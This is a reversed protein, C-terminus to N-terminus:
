QPTRWASAFLLRLLQTGLALFTLPLVIAQLLFVVALTVLPEAANEVIGRIREVRERVDMEAKASEWWRLIQEGVGAPSMETAPEAAAQAAESTLQLQAKAAEFEPTLLSHDVLATALAFGPVLFRLALAFVLLRAAMPQLALARPWFQAALWLGAAASLLLNLLLSDSLQLAFKQIGLATLATFALTSFQELLDNLPDLLEGPSVTLGVGAPSLSVDADQILSIVGNLSRAIAFTAFSRKFASDLERSAVRDLAGLWALVVAVILVIAAIRTRM